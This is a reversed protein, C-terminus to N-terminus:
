KNANELIKDITDKNKNSMIVNSLTTKESLVLSEKALDTQLNGISVGKVDAM